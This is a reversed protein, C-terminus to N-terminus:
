RNEWLRKAKAVLGREYDNVRRVKGYENHYYGLHVHPLTPEDDIKHPYGTVDIQANRKGRKDYLTISKVKNDSLTVYIRGKTKTEMPTKANIAKDYKVFKIHGVQLVSHFETGYPFGQTSIGSAAGRGGM